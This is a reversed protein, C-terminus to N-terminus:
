FLALSPGFVEILCAYMTAAVSFSLLFSFFKTVKHNMFEFRVVLGLAIGSYLLYMNLERATMTVFATMAGFFILSLNTDHKGKALMMLVVVGFAVLLLTSVNLPTPHFYM